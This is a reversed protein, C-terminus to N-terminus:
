SGILHFGKQQNKLTLFFDLILSLIINLSHDGDRFNAFETNKKGNERMRHPEGTHFNARLSHLRLVLTAPQVPFMLFM